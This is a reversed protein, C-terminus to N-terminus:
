YGTSPCMGTEDVPDEKVDEDEYIIFRYDRIMDYLYSLADIGDRKWLPFKDMEDRLRERYVSPVDKSIFIKSNYLPWALASEIRKNKNRGAPRLLVLTKNVVDIHRGHERLANAVHIETTSIGVKEIGTQLIIGNRLYMRVIEEIAETERLPSIMSDLIIIKSTGIDDTKPEVGIVHFAWSDGKGDTDDGAQDVVMFKFLNKPIFEPEIDRLLSGELKRIGTPTPDCLQQSNFHGSTKLKDLRKQSLFVPKGDITGDDTAPKIRTIYMPSDDINKKDRIRVLTGSHSYYTGIVRETGGDVGLNDSMEFRSFCKDMQDPNEAIDATEVDDYIRREFHKGTSMGEVLGSTEVTSEKRSVGSRKLTIGNQLSWSPAQTDPKQYLIDPFCRILIEKEYTKRISDLFDEAAPKKYSFICTCHEPNKLHYQITEAITIISSKFHERAWVDLTMTKPGDEMEKCADVVFKKNAIPIEMVFYIIFFLDDLILSKLTGIEDLTGNDINGFILPYDYKYDVGPVPTFKVM